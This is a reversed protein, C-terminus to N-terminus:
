TWSTLQSSLLVMFLPPIAHLAIVSFYIPISSIFNARKKFNGHHLNTFLIISYCVTFFSCIVLFPVCFISFAIARSILIIERVLNIFPPAAINGAIILFWWLAISPAVITIGTRLLLRRSHTNEYYINAAAFLGSRILGHAIIIILSGEWGWKNITFIGIIVFAIHSVSSYAIISKIDIQRICLIATLIAGTISVPIIYPSLSVACNPFITLLRIMGYGGLKLLIRALIISGAVPAEVHAKPLWLHFLYIPIKVLFAMILSLAIFINICMFTPQSFYIVSHSSTYLIILSALLPLSSTVTYLILYMGAELREPQYGWMLVIILTPILSAEFIIYFSLLSNVSFRVILIITLTNVLKIFLSPNTNYYKIKLSTILMLNTIWLTLAILLTRLTDLSIIPSLTIPTGLPSYIYTFVYVIVFPITLTITSWSNLLTLIIIISIVLIMLVAPSAEEHICIM